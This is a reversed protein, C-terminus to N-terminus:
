EAGNQPFLTCLQSKSATVHKTKFFVVRYRKNELSDVGLDDRFISVRKGTNLWTDNIRGLGTLLSPSPTTDGKRGKFFGM